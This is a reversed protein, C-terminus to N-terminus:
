RSHAPRGRGIAGAARAQLYAYIDDIYPAVNPDGAFGRMVSNGRARGNSVVLAFEEFPLPREILSPAFTSGLGDAGHCHSCTAHYRRYGNLIARDAAAQDPTAPAGGGAQAAAPAADALLVLLIPVLYRRGPRGSPALSRRRAGSM